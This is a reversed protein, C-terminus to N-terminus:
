HNCTIHVKSTNPEFSFFHLVLYFRNAFDKWLNICLPTARSVPGGTPHGLRARKAAGRGLRSSVVRCYSMSCYYCPHRTSWHIYTGNCLLCTLMGNRTYCYCLVFWNYCDFILFVLCSRLFRIIVHISSFDRSL